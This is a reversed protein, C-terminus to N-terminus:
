SVCCVFTVINWERSVRKKDYAGASFLDIPEVGQTSCPTVNPLNQAPHHTHHTQSPKTNREYPSQDVGLKRFM